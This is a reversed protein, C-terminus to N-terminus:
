RNQFYEPPLKNLYEPPRKNLSEPPRKNPQRNKFYESYEPPLTNPQRNHFFDSGKDMLYWGLDAGTEKVMRWAEGSAGEREREYAEFEADTYGGMIQSQYIDSLTKLDQIQQLNPNGQRGTRGTLKDIAAKREEISLALFAPKEMRLMVAATNILAGENPIVGEGDKLAREDQENKFKLARLQEAALERAANAAAAQAKSTAKAQALREQENQARLLAEEAKKDKLEQSIKNSARADELAQLDLALKANIDNIKNAMEIGRAKMDFEQKEEAIEVKKKELGLMKNRINMENQTASIELQNKLFPNALKSSVKNKKTIEFFRKEDIKQNGDEDIELSDLYAQQMVSDDRKSKIDQIVGAISGGLNQYMQGTASGAQSLAQIAAPNVAGLRPDVTSGLVAM